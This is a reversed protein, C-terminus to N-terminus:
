GGYRISKHCHPCPVVTKHSAKTRDRCEKCTKLQQGTTVKSGFFEPLKMRKCCSCKSLDTMRLTGCVDTFTRRKIMVRWIMKRNVIDVVQSRTCFGVVTMSVKYLRVVCMFSTWSWFLYLIRLTHNGFMVIQWVWQVCEFRIRSDMCSTNECLRLHRVKAFECALTCLRITAIMLHIHSWLLERCCPFEIRVRFSTKRSYFSELVEKQNRDEEAHRQLISYSLKKLM